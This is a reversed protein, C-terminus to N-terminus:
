FMDRYTEATAQRGVPSLYSSTAPDKRREMPDKGFLRMMLGVPTLVVYLFLGLLLRNSLHSLRGALAGWLRNLPLALWPAVFAVVALGAAVGFVWPVVAGYGAWAALGILGFLIAFTLAFARNTQRPM